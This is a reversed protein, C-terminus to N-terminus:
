DSGGSGGSAPLYREFVPELDKLVYGRPGRGNSERSSSVGFGRLYKGLRHATLPRRERGLEGWPAEELKLLRGIVEDTPVRDEKLEAFITRLDGLLRIRLDEEDEVRRGSLADAAKRARAPWDGGARDAIALLPRWNDAARDSLREPVNPDADRLAAAEDLAFRALLSRLPRAENEAVRQRFRALRHARSKRQMPLVICRSQLSSPLAGILAFAKPGWTSFTAVSLDDGNVKVSRVTYATARTHGCNLVGRLEDSLNVFTDAEDILLTPAYKEITRFVASPSINSALLPRRVLLGYLEGILRTKGCEHTPGVAALYPAVDSVDICWTLAIWLVAAELGGAPLVVFRQLFEELQGLLHAGDVLTDAPEPDHFLLPSGQPARARARTRSCKRNRDSAAPVSSM